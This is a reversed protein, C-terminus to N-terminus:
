HSAEPDQRDCQVNMERCVACWSPRSGPKARCRAADDGEPAAALVPVAVRYLPFGGACARAVAEDLAQLGVPKVIVANMGADLAAQHDEAVASATCGIVPVCCVADERARVARTFALGDMVPMACDCVIVDFRDADLRALAERGGCATAVQHGLHELQRQM